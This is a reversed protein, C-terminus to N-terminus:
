DTINIAANVKICEDLEEFACVSGSFLDVANRDYGYIIKTKMMYHGEKDIFMEGPSISSFPVTPTHRNDCIRM